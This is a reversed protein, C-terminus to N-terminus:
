MAGYILNCRAHLRYVVDMKNLRKQPLEFLNWLLSEVNVIHTQGENMLLIAASLARQVDSTKGVTPRQMWSLVYPPPYVRFM